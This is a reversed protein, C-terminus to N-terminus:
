RAPREPRPRRTTGFDEAFINAERSRIMQVAQQRRQRAKIALEM